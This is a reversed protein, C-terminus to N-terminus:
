QVGPGAVPPSYGHLAGNVAGFLTAALGMGAVIKQAPGSGFLDTLQATATAGVGVVAGLINLWMSIKPDLEM